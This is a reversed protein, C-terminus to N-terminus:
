KIRRGINWEIYDSEHFRFARLSIGMFYDKLFYYKIGIRQYFVPTTNTTKKRSIYFGPQLIISLRNVMLEYSPYISLSLHNEFPLDVKDLKANEVAIQANLAGNYGFSFGIGIKSKYDICRSITNNIGYIPFYVGEYKEIINVDNGLYSVNKVGCFVYIDWEFHRSYEPVERKIFPLSANNLKYRFSLKFAGTNLGRNPMKLKGNSFHYLGYGASLFYKSTLQYEFNLGAEIYTSREASIAINYPNKIPDFNNWNTAIGLGMEYNFNLKRYRIFPASFFGYFAIPVGLEQTENFSASYIGIGYVPYGYLQEWLKDGKTQKLLLLSFSNYSDIPDHLLNDGRIFENTPFVYGTQFSGRVSIPIKILFSDLKSKQAISFQHLILVLPLFLFASYGKMLLINM